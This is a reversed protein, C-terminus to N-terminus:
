LGLAVLGGGVNGGWGWGTGVFVLGGSISPGSASSAGVSLALREEGTLLDLAHLTGDHTTFYMLGGAVAVGGFGGPSVTKQWLPSGSSADLATAVAATPVTNTRSSGGIATNAVAYIVGDAYATTHEVGGLRSGAALVATWVTTGTERDFAKYCGGKDGVGVLKRGNAEFLNPSAGVDFDPGPGRTGNALDTFVDGSTFQHSWIVAGTDYRLAVLSDSLDSAPATYAQGTGMFALGLATDVAASSWVSVGSQGPDCVSARWAPEGTAADLGVVAGRFAPFAPEWVQYSAAGILLTGGAVVPSSWIRNNPTTEVTRSWRLAGTARDVAHVVSGDGASYVTDASVYPSGSLMGNQLKTTWVETGDSARRAMLRGTWDSFYVVGGVIAPTSTVSGGSWSWRPRLGSM